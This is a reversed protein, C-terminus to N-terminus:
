ILGKKRCVIFTVIVALLLVVLGAGMLYFPTYNMVYQEEETEKAEEKNDLATEETELSEGVVYTGVQSLEATLIKAEKDVTIEVKKIEDDTSVCFLEVKEVDIEEPIKFAAKVTGNPQVSEENNTAKIEYAIFQSVKDKLKESIDTTKESDVVNEVTVVTNEVFADAAGSIKVDATEAFIVEEIKEEDTEVTTGDTNQTNSSTGNGAGGTVGQTDSSAGGDEYRIEFTILDLNWQDNKGCLCFQIFDGEDVDVYEDVSLTEGDVLEYRDMEFWGTMGYPFIPEASTKDPEAANGRKPDCLLIGFLGGDNKGSVTAQFVIQVSGSRPAKFQIYSVGGTNCTTLRSKTYVAPKQHTDGNTWSGGKYSASSAGCNIFWGNENQKTPFDTIYSYVTKDAAKVSTMPMGSVGVTMVTALIFLLLKKMKKITNM